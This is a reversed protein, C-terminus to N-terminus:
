SNKRGKIVLAPGRDIEEKRERTEDEEPEIALRDPFPAYTGALERQQAERPQPRQM